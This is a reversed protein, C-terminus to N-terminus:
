PRLEKVKKFSLSLIGKSTKRKKSVFRVMFLFFGRRFRGRLTRAVDASSSRDLTLKLPIEKPLLDKHPSM